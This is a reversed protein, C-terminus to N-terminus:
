LPTGGYEGLNKLSGTDLDKILPKLIEDVLENKGKQWLAYNEAFWEKANKNSYKSASFFGQRSRELREKSNYLRRLTKEM